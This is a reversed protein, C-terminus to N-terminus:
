EYKTRIAKIFFGAAVLGFVLGIIAHTEILLLNLFTFSYGITTYYMKENMIFDKPAKKEM